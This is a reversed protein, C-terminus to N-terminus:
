GPRPTRRDGLAACDLGIERHGYLLGPRRARKGSSYRQRHAEPPPQIGRPAPGAPLLKAHEGSAAPHCMVLCEPVM